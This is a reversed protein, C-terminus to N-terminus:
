KASGFGGTVNEPDVRWELSGNCNRHLSAKKGGNLRAVVGATARPGVHARRIGKADYVPIANRRSPANFKIRRM